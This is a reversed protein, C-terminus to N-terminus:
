KTRVLTVQALGLFGPLPFNWPASQTVGVVPDLSFNFSYVGPGTQTSGGPFGNCQGQTSNALGRADLRIQMKSSEGGSPQSSVLAPWNGSVVVGITQNGGVECELHPGEITGSSANPVAGAGSIAGSDQFHLPILTPLSNWDFGIFGGPTPPRWSGRFQVQLAYQMEVCGCEEPDPMGGNMADVWKVARDSMQARTMSRPPDPFVSKIDAVDQGDTNLARMGAYAAQIFQVGGDDNRMHRIFRPGDGAFLTKQQRCLEIGPKEKSTGPLNWQMAPAPALRWRPPDGGTIESHCEKCDKFTRLFDEPSGKNCPGESGDECFVKLGSVPHTGRANKGFPSVGGHCNFCRLEGFIPLLKAFAEVAKTQQPESLPCVPQGDQADAVSFIGLALSAIIWRTARM